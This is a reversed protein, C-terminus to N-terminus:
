GTAEATSSENRRSAAGSRGVVFTIFRRVLSRDMLWVTAVYVVVGLPVQVLLRALPSAADPLVTAIGAVAAVMAAVAALPTKLGAFFGVIAPGGLVRHVLVLLM